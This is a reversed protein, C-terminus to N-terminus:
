EQALEKQTGLRIVVESARLKDGLQAVAAKMVEEIESSSWVKATSESVVQDRWANRQSEEILRLNELTLALQESVTEVLAMEEYTWQREPAVDQLSLTGIVQGRLAIPAVIAPEVEHGNGSAGVIIKTKGERIVEDQVEALAKDSTLRQVNSREVNSQHEIHWNGQYQESLFQSWEKRVYQRYTAEVEALLREREAEAQKRETIDELVVLLVEPKGESDYIPLKTTHALRVGHSTTIEEVPIDILQGAEIAAIDVKRYEDAAEKESYDYDNKGLMDERKVGFLEEMRTNWLSFRYDNRVDKAFVGVPISDIIRNLFEKQQAIIRESQKRETIEESIALLYKPKGDPGYIPVKQTHLLRIESAANQIPEEPIDLLKGSALVERDKVTFFDAEEKPFLDYDTKGIMAKRDIGVLKEGYKNWRVFRLDQADKVAVLIPINEIVSDLFSSAEEFEVARQQIQELLRRSEIYSGVRSAIGGLLASEENLFDRKETYSIYVRGLVEIGIRLANVIQCPLEIAEPVGYIQGDYEIAAVCLEPYQMAPPIRETIWQLLEPRPPAEVIERGIENLCNLEKVREGLLLTAQQQEAFSQANQLAATIQGALITKLRVDEETFRDVVDAQVDLVGWLQDGVILPVAMEARTEPLLSNPLFDPEQHVDNVIVGQRTRAARAVLSHERELPISWGKDVMQRGIEGAGAALVLTEGTSNLLYVHVHYLGFNSKTLDVVKQLLKDTELITSIAVSVQAVTELETARKAVTELAQELRDSQVFVIQEHTDLLQELAVVQARLRVVEKELELNNDKV